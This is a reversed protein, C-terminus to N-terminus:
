MISLVKLVKCIVTAANNLCTELDYNTRYLNIACKDIHQMAQSILGCNILLIRCKFEVTM